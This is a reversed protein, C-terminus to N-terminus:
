DPRRCDQLADLRQQPQQIMHALRIANGRLATHQRVDGGRHVGHPAASRHIQHKLGDRAGFRRVRREAHVDRQEPFRALLRQLQPAARHAVVHHIEFGALAARERRVRMVAHILLGAFRPRVPQRPM